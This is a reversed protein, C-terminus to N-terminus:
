FYRNLLAIAIAMVLYPALFAGLVAYPNGNSKIAAITALTIAIITLAMFGRSGGRKSKRTAM